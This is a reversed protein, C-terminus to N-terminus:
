KNDEDTELTQYHGKGHQSLSNERAMFNKQQKEKEEDYKDSAISHGSINAPTPDKEM